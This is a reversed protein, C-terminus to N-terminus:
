SSHDGGERILDRNNYIRRSWEDQGDIQQDHLDSRSYRDWGTSEEVQQLNYCVLHYQEPTMGENIRGSQWSHANLASTVFEEIITRGGHGWLQRGVSTRENAVVPLAAKSPTSSNGKWSVLEGLVLHDEAIGGLLKPGEKTTRPRKGGRGLGKPKINFHTPAGLDKPGVLIIKTLM